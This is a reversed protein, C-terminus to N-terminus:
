NAPAQASGAVQTQPRKRADDIALIELQTAIEQAAHEIAAVDEATVKAPASRLRQNIEAIREAHVLLRDRISNVQQATAVSAAHLEAIATDRAGDTRASDLERWASLEHTSAKWWDLFNARHDLLANLSQAMANIEDRGGAVAPMRATPRGYALDDLLGAMQRVSRVIRTNIAVAFLIALAIAGCLVLLGLRVSSQASETIESLRTAMRQNAHDVNAQILPAVQAAAADMEHTLTVLNARQSALVLFSRQYDRLLGVFAAKDADPLTAAAIQARITRAIEAVMPPYAADGRLLFDKERRRLQLVSVELNPVHYDDLIAEIRQAADRFPGKGGVNGAKLASAAFAEFTRTYVSLEALLKRRVEDPLASNEILQRFEVILKRVRERYSADQRLALDKESRRIQLLVVYLPDVNYQASLEHLRKTKERFAGQIGSNEDLGMARWADAVARFKEQYTDLLGGIEESTQRSQDDVAALAALKERLSQQHREVEAVYREQRHMLFHKEADRAEAMAIEIELALTKRVEFIGQLQRFDTLVAQLTQQYYWVVGVFLLGVVTFALASKEGVRFKSWLKEM